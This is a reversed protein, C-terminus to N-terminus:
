EEGNMTAAGYHWPNLGWVTEFADQADNTLRVSAKTGFKCGIYTTLRGDLGDRVRFDDGHGHCINKPMHELTRSRLSAFYHEFAVGDNSQGTVSKWENLKERGFHCAVSAFGKLAKRQEATLALRFIPRGESTHSLVCLILMDETPLTLYYLPAHRTVGRGAGDSGLFGIVYTKAASEESYRSFYTQVAVNEWNRFVSNEAMEAINEINPNLM